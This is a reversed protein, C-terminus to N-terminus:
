ANKLLPTQVPLGAEVDVAVTPAPLETGADADTVEGDAPLKANLAVYLPSLLLLLTLLKHSGKVTLLAFGDKPVTMLFWAPAVTVETFM